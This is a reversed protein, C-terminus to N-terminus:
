ATLFEDLIQNVAEPKDLQIWHGTDTVVRHPFGKGVRHLSFPEDNHPTVVSLIPGRYGALSPRPDFRMVARFLREVVERPTARLDALLRDKVAANPGAIQSWYGQIVSDYDAELAQLFSDAQEAPIQTGDGIPDLLLLGAVRDAHAGAYTLAVGGGLSHGVLVFRSLGLGDLVAGLDAALGGISYDRNGAPESAGHARFDFAVARRSSRLHRLQHSWHGSTGALSHALVVPVGGHGGDDLALTGTPGAIRTPSM